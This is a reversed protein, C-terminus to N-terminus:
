SNLVTMSDLDRATLAGLDPDTQTDAPEAARTRRLLIWGYGLLLVGGAILPVGGPIHKEWVAVYGLEPIYGRVRYAYRGIIAVTAPDAIKNADGKTRVVVAGSTSRSVSIVRHVYLTHHSGPELLALVDGVAVSRVPVREIAAVSGVPLSHGMSGSLVPRAQWRGTGIAIASVSVAIVAITLLVDTILRV